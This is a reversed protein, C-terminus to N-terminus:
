DSSQQGHLRPTSLLDGNLGRFYPCNHGRGRRRGRLWGINTPMEDM